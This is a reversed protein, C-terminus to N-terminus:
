QADEEMQRAKGNDKSQTLKGHKLFFKALLYEKLNSCLILFIWGGRVMQRRLKPFM